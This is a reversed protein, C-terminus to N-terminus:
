SQTSLRKKLEADIEDETMSSYPNQPFLPQGDKGTHEKKEAFGDVVQLWLKACAGNGSRARAFIGTMVMPTWRKYDSMFNELTLEQFHKHVIRLSLGTSESIQKQTPPQRHNKIHELFAAEIRQHNITYTFNRKKKVKKKNM